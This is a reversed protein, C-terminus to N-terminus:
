PAASGTIVHEAAIRLSIGSAAAHLRLCVYANEASSSGRHMIVQLALQITARITLAAALGSLLEEGGADLVRVALEGPELRGPDYITWVGKILPAMADGDRGYLNLTAIATGSGAFLPISVSCELGLDVAKQRFGPWAMTTAIHPVTVPTDDDLPQLCPGEGDAYQAQDVAAALESSTAVTTFAGDRRRTVSAYDVAGVQAAALAVLNELQEDIGPADDPTEALTILGETLPGRAPSASPVENDPADGVASRVPPYGPGRRMGAPMPDPGHPASADTHLPLRVHMTTGPATGPDVRIVGGHLDVITRALSLGLGAGSRGQHRVNGARYFRDFLRHRDEDPVGIGGDTVHLEAAAHGRALRVHVGGGPASYRIANTLLVDVVQRLRAADGDVALHAPLDTTLRLGGHEAEPGAAGVARAVIEALDVQRVTLPLHGSELGALELLTDVMDSLDTGNRAITDLMRRHEDDLGALDEGLIGAYAVISTLPTRLEHGVLTVFDEKAHSLQRALEEARRRALYAGIQAAVGDLLVTLLDEHYEPTGAYCTLVGLVTGADRVPVSVVTRLGQRICADRRAQSQPTGLYGTRTLDPVWLPTGTAWTRGTIGAGKVVVYDRLEGLRLGARDFSGAPRLTDTVEDLIWLEAYPWGLTRVVAELVAPAADSITQAAALAKSVDTHCARFREARRMETVEHAAVVAGWRRGDAGVIPRANSAFTRDPRGPARVVVDVDHVDEGHFARHLPAQERTMPTGDPHHLMALAAATHADGLDGTAPLLQAERLAANVVVVKGRADCAIVGVSLSDLLGALFSLQWDADHEPDARGSLDTLFVCALAGGAGRIVSMAARVPLQHGDRHRVQLRRFLRRGAPATFLRAVEAGLQDPRLTEDLHRGCVEQATYGLLAQAAPNWGAVVGDADIALFAEQVGDLLAGSDLSAPVASRSEGAAAVPHLLHAIEVLADLQRGSWERAAVDLVTLAGVPQDAGDRLPVGVFARIGHDMVLPHDRLPGDVAAHADDCRVPHDASVVFTSVSCAIPTRREVTLAAPLGHIGALYEDTEAVLAVVGMPADLLRAALGAIGDLPMPLAPFARRARDVAALRRPDGILREDFTLM